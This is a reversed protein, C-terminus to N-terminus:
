CERFVGNRLYGHWECGDMKRISPSTTPCDENGDWQWKPEKAGPVDLNIGGIDGCGCPCVFMIGAHGEINQRTTYMFNGPEKLQDFDHVRVAKADRKGQRNQNQRRPRKKAM